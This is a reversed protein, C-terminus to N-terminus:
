ADGSAHLRAAAQDILGQREASDGRKAPKSCFAPLVVPAHRPGYAGSERLFTAVTGDAIGTKPFQARFAILCTKRSIGGIPRQREVYGQLWAKHKDDLERPLTAPTRGHKM